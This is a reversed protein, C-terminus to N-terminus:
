IQVINCLVQLFGPESMREVTASEHVRSLVVRNLVCQVHGFQFLETVRQCNVSLKVACSCFSMYFCCPPLHVCIHKIAEMKTKFSKNTVNWHSNEHTLFHFSIKRYYKPSATQGAELYRSM